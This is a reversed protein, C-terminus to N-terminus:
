ERVEIEEITYIPHGMHLNKHRIVFQEALYHSAFVDELIVQHGWQAWVLFVKRSM